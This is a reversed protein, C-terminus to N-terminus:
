AAAAPLRKTLAAICTGITITDMQDWATVGAKEFWKLRDEEDLHLTKALGAVMEVQEATAIAVTEAAAEMVDLGYRQGFEPYSWPFTSGSTFQSLRCKGVRAMRQNGAQYVNLVLDLEYDLKDWGDFTTGVQEGNAWLPREHAILIVNMDLHEFWRVMQRSASVAPKKESGYSPKDGDGKAKIREIEIAVATAFLKSYSDIVLTRFDHKV